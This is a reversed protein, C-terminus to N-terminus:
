RTGSGIDRYGGATRREIASAAGGYDGAVAPAPPIDLDAGDGIESGAQALPLRIRMRTGQGPASDVDIEGGHEAVFRQVTTMGIGTGKDKPKTTFFPEFVRALVQPTMGTGTDELKLAAHTGDAEVSLFFRGGQPMADCANSVINLLALVLEDRDARVLLGSASTDLSAQIGRPFMPLILPRVEDIAEALDFTSVQRVHTRSFSLLRRTLTAGSRAAQRIGPLVADISGGRKDVSTAHGLIVSLIANFDHAIGTSLRGVTEMKQTQLLREYAREKEEVQRTLELCLANLEESRNIARQSSLILRDLIMVLVLFNMGALLLNSLVQSAQMSDTALRLDTHAGIGLVAANALATWWVAGRGLFLGSFLLPLLLTIQLGSQAQLGYAQYSAGILLLGGAVTLSTALRFWGNRLLCFCLGTYASIVLILGNEGGGGRDAGAACSAIAMFLTATTAVALIAQLTLANRRDRRAHIPVRNMWGIFGHWLSLLSVRAIMPATSALLPTIAM